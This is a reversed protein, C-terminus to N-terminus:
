ENNMVSFLPLLGGAYFTVKTRRGLHRYRELASYVVFAYPGISSLGHFIAHLHLQYGRSVYWDCFLQEPIWFFIFGICWAGVGIRFVRRQDANDVGDNVRKAVYTILFCCSTFVTFFMEFYRDIAFYLITTASAVLVLVVPLWPYLPKKADHNQSDLICFLFALVAWLMTLEDLAQGVWTLTAHFLASALGIISMFVYAVFVRREFDRKWALTAGLVGLALIALSSLTNFFEAIHPSWVYNAECWDVSSRAWAGGLSM